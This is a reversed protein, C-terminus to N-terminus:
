FDNRKEAILVLCAGELRKEEECMQLLALTLTLIHTPKPIPTINM